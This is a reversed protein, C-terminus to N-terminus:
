RRDPWRRLTSDREGHSRRHRCAAASARRAGTGRCTRSAPRSTTTRPAGARRRSSPPVNGPMIALTSTVAVCTKRTRPPSRHVDRRGALRSEHDHARGPHDAAIPSRPPPSPRTSSWDRFLETVVALATNPVAWAHSLREIATRHAVQRKLALRIELQKELKSGLFPM